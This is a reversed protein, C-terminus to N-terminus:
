LRTARRAATSTVATTQAPASPLATDLSQQWNRSLIGLDQADVVGDNNLDGRLVGRDSRYWNTALVVLDHVDVRRDHNADGDLTFFTMQYNTGLPTGTADTVGAGILTLQYDGSALKAGPLVPFSLTAVNSASDYSLTMQGGPITAGTRTNQLVIDAVSLSASVNAGFAIKVAQPGLDYEFWGGLVGLPNTLRASGWSAHDGTNGNGGNTVILRMDSKGAVSVNVNQTPSSGSMTGSDFLKIGDVWVQFVVSGSNGVEDDVGVSAVFQTFNGGLAYRLESGAHVGLGKGHSVGNLLITRGDNAASEGNSKDREYPGWGNSVYSPNLDSLYATGSSASDDDAIVITATDLPAAGAVISYTPSPVLNIAVPETGEVNSDDLPRIVLDATSAGQAFTVSGSIAQYDVGNIASGRLQYWVTLSAATNGTRTFRFTGTQGAGEGASRDITAVKVVPMAVPDLRNRWLTVPNPEGFYGHNINLIDVDGDADVDGIKPNHGGPPGSFLQRVFSQGTGDGYFILLRAPDAQEQEVVFLDLHGDLNYDAVEISGTHVDTMFPEIVTSTWVAGAQRPNAPAKFWELPGGDSFEDTALVVDNKGDEDMDVVLVSVLPYGAAIVRRTWASTIPSSAGITPNEYWLLQNPTSQSPALMDLDGDNDIDGLATGFNGRDAFLSVPLLSWSNPNNQIYIGTRTALDINGDLNIDGIEVDHLNPSGIVHETWLGAAPNGGQAVPNELWRDAVIIDTDGDNDIDASQADEYLFNNGNWIKASKSWTPYKYWYLGDGLQHAIVDTFGDQDIDALAKPKHGNAVIAPDIVVRDFPVHDPDNVIAAAFLCRNELRELRIM